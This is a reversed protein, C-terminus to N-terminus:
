LVSESEITVDTESDPPTVATATPSTTPSAGALYGAITGLLTFAATRSQEGVAAFALAVGLVAVTILGYLRSFTVNLTRRGLNKNFSFWYILAFVVLTAGGFLLLQDLSGTSAASPGPEATTTTTQLSHLVM